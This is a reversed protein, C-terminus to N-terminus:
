NCMFTIVTPALISVIFLAHISNVPSNITMIFIYTYQLSMIAKWACLVWYKAM